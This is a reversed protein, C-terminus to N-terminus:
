FKISFNVKKFHEFSSGFLEQHGPAHRGDPYNDTISLLNIVAALALIQQSVARVFWQVPGLKSCQM